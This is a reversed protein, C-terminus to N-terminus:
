VSRVQMQIGLLELVDPHAKLRRFAYWSIWFAVSDRCGSSRDRLALISAEPFNPAWEAFLVLVACTVMLAADWWFFLILSTFLQALAFACWHRLKQRCCSEM